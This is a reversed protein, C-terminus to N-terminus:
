QLACTTSNNGTRPGPPEFTLKDTARLDGQKIAIQFHEQAKKADKAVFWGHEYFCGLEFHAEPMNEFAAKQLLNFATEENKVVGGKGSGYCAALSYYACVYGQNSALTLWGQGKKFDKTIGGSGEIFCVGLQHQAAALGQTAALKFLAFGQAENKGVGQGNMYCWGLDHRAEACCLNSSRGYLEVAKKIDAQYGIGHHHFVGLIWLAEANICVTEEQSTALAYVHSSQITGEVISELLTRLPKLRSVLENAIFKKASFKLSYRIAWPIFDPVRFTQQEALGKRETSFHYQNLMREPLACPHFSEKAAITPNNQKFTAIDKRLIRNPFMEFSELDELTIPDYRNGRAFWEAIVTREYTHGSQIVVPDFMLALSIPCLYSEPITDENVKPAIARVTAVQAAALDNNLKVDLGNSSM